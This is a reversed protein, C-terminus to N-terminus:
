LRAQRKWLRVPRGTQISRFLNPLRSTPDFMLERKNMKGFGMAADQYLM